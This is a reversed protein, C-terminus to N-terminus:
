TNNKSLEVGSYRFTRRMEAVSEAQAINGLLSGFYGAMYAYVDGQDGNKARYESEVQKIFREVEARRAQARDLSRNIKQNSCFQSM